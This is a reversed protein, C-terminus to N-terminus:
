GKGSHFLKMWDDVEDDSLPREGGKEITLPRPRKPNKSPPKEDKLPQSRDKKKRPAREPVPGFLELWEAIEQENIQPKENLEPMAPSAPLGRQAQEAEALELAFDESRRHPMRREKAVEIIQQDSSILTFEPPNKLNRIRNIILADATTAQSAFIVKVSRNSYRVAKGGPLGGDFVVTIRRKQSGAAWSKLRLVLKMEDNPDDLSIDTMKAILNHGDIFYHM